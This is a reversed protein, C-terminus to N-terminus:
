TEETPNFSIITQNHSSKKTHGNTRILKTDDDDHDDVNELMVYEVNNHDNKSTLRSSFIQRLGLGLLCIIITISFIILVIIIITQYSNDLTNFKNVVVDIPSIFWNNIHSSPTVLPHLCFGKIFVYKQNKYGFFLNFPNRVM